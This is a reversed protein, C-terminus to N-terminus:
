VTHVNVLNPKLTSSIPTKRKWTSVRSKRIQEEKETISQEKVQEDEDAAASGTTASKLKGDEGTLKNMRRRVMTLSLPM